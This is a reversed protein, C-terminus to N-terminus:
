TLPKGLLSAMEEMAEEEDPGSCILEADTFSVIRSSLMSIVSKVNYERSGFRITIRSSFGAAKECIRSAPRLHLGEPFNLVIQRSIM